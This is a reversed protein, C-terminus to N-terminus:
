NSESCGIGDIKWEGDVKIVRVPIVLASDSDILPAADIDVIRSDEIHEEGQKACLASFADIPTNEKEAESLSDLQTKFEHTLENKYWYARDELIDGQYGQAWGYTASVVVQPNNSGPEENALVYYASNGESTTKESVRQATIGGVATSMLTLALM